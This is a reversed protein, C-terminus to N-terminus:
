TELIRSIAAKDRATLVPPSAASEFLPGGLVDCVWFFTTGLDGSGL